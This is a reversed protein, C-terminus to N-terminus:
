GPRGASLCWSLLLRTGSNFYGSRLITELPDYSAYTWATFGAEGQGEFADRLGNSRFVM